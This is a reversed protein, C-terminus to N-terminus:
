PSCTSYEQSGCLQPSPGVSLPPPSSSGLTILYTFSFYFCFSSASLPIYSLLTLFYHLSSLFSYREGGRNASNSPRQYLGLDDLKRLLEVDKGSVKGVFVNM